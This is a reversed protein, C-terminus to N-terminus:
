ASGGPVHPAGEHRGAITESRLFADLREPMNLEPTNVPGSPHEM